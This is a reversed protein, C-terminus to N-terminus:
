EIRPVLTINCDYTSSVIIIVIILRLTYVMWTQETKM